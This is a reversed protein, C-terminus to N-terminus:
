LAEVECLAMTGQDRMGTTLERILLVKVKFGQHEESNTIKALDFEDAHIGFEDGIAPQVAFNAAGLWFKDHIAPRRVRTIQGAPVKLGYLKIGVKYENGAIEGESVGAYDIFALDGYKEPDASNVPQADYVDYEVGTKSYTDDAHLAVLEVLGGDPAEIPEGTKSNIYASALYTRVDQSIMKGAHFLNKNAM